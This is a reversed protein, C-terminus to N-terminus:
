KKSQTPGNAFYKKPVEGADLLAKVCQKSLQNRHAEMCYRLEPSDPSHTSCYAFYDDTCNKIITEDWARASTAHAGILLAAAFVTGVGAHMRYSGSSKM